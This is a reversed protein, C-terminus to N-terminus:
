NDDHKFDLYGDIAGFIGGLCGAILVSAWLPLGSFPLYACVAVLLLLELVRFVKM